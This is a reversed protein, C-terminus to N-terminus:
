VGSPGGARSGVVSRSADEVRRSSSPVCGSVWGGGTPADMARGRRGVARCARPRRHEPVDGDHRLLDRKRVLLGLQGSAAATAAEDILPLGARWDGSAVEAMGKFAMASFLADASGQRRAVEMAREAIEIAETLHTAILEGFARYALLAAHVRSEPQSELLHEARALWGMGISMAGRQLAQHALALAVEAADAARGVDSYGAFARELAEASDDPQGAWWSAKGLLGLDDPALGGDRDAATFAEIAEAWAHRAIADRGTELTDIM